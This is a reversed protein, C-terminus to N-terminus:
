SSGLCIVFCALTHQCRKGTLAINYVPTENRSLWKIGCFYWIAQELPTYIWKAQDSRWVIFLKEVESVLGDGKRILTSQV